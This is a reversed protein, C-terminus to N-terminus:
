VYLCLPSRLVLIKMVILGNGRAKLSDMALLMELRQTRGVCRVRRALDEFYDTIIKGCLMLRTMKTM